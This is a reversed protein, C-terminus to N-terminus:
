LKIFEMVTKELVRVGTIINEVWHTQQQIGNLTFATSTKKVWDAAQGGYEQAVQAANDFVRKVGPGAIIKGEEGLQAESALSKALNVGAVASRACFQIIQTAQEGSPDSLNVPNNLAYAYPNQTQPITLYGKLPDKSIFRGITPDYYRARLYYLSSENDLQQGQYLMHINAQGKAARWNGFPDYETSRVKNGVEDTVFRLNGQGDLAYVCTEAYAKQPALPTQLFPLFSTLFLLLTLLFSTFKKM